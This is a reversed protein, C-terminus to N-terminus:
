QVVVNYMLQKQQGTANFAATGTIKINITEGAALTLGTLSLTKANSDSVTITQTSLDSFTYGGGSPTGRRLSLTYSSNVSGAMSAILKVTTAASALLRHGDAENNNAAYLGSYLTGNGFATTIPIVGIFSLAPTGGGGSTGTVATWNPSSTSGSNVYFGPTNDLQYILLGTAPTGILNRQDRTMRPILIGKETSSVDLVASVDPTTNIGVNNQAFATASCFSFFLLTFIKKM